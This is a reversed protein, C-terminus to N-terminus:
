SLIFCIGDPIQRLKKDCNKKEFILNFRFNGFCFYEKDYKNIYIQTYSSFVCNKFLRQIIVNKMHTVIYTPLIHEDSLIEDKIYLIDIRTIKLIIM